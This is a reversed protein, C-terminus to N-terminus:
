GDDLPFHFHGARGAASMTASFFQERKQPLNAWIMDRINNSRNQSWFLSRPADKPAISGTKRAPDTGIPGPTGWITIQKERDRIM